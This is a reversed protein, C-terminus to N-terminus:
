DVSDGYKCITPNERVTKCNQNTIKRDRGFDLKRESKIPLKKKLPLLVLFRSSFEYLANQLLLAHEFPNLNIAVLKM